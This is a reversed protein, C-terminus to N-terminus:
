NAALLLNQKHEAMNDHELEFLKGFPTGFGFVQGFGFPTHQGKPLFDGLNDAHLDEEARRTRRICVVIIDKDRGEAAHFLHETILLMGAMHGEAIKDLGQPFGVATGADIVLQLFSLTHAFAQGANANRVCVPLLSAHAERRGNENQPAIEPM